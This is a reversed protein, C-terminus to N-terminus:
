SNIETRQHFPMEKYLNPYYQHFTKTNGYQRNICYREIIIEIGNEKEKQIKYALWKGPKNAFENKFKKYNM